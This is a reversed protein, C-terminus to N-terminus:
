KRKNLRNAKYLDREFNETGCNLCILNMNHLKVTGFKANAKMQAKEKELEKVANALVNSGLVQHCNKCKSKQLINYNYKRSYKNWFKLFVSILIVVAIVISIYKM